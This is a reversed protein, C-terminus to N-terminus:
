FRRVIEVRRQQAALPDIGHLLDSEGRGRVALRAQQIGKEVLFELAANARRLSLLENYGASGSADTHGEVVFSVGQLEPASIAQAIIALNRKATDSLTASDYAFQVPFYVSVETGAAPADAPNLIVILDRAKDEAPNFLNRSRTEEALAPISGIAFMVSALIACFTLRRVRM